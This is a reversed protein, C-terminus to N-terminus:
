HETNDLFSNCKFVQAVINVPGVICVIVQYKLPVPYFMYIYLNYITSHWLAKLGSREMQFSNVHMTIM